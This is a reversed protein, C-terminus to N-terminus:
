AWEFRNRKKKSGGESTKRCVREKGCFKLPTASCEVLFFNKTSKNCSIDNSTNLLVKNEQIVIQNVDIYNVRQYVFSWETDQLMLRTPIKSLFAM